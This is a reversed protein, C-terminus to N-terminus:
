GYSNEMTKRTHRHMETYNLKPLKRMEYNLKQRKRAGREGRSKYSPM